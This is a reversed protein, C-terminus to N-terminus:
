VPLGNMGRAERRAHIFELAAARDAFKRKSGRTATSNFYVRVTGDAADAIIGAYAGHATRVDFSTRGKYHGAIDLQYIM